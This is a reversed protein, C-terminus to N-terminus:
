HVQVTTRMWPHLCCMFRQTAAPGLEAEDTHGPPVFDGPALTLCEPAPVPNGSLQNLIPVIGGGYAQVPTFTHAEGGRNIALLTQGERAAMRPPANVWSGAKQHRTLQEIFRAFTVGGRRVCTGPGIAANFTAPDCADMMTVRRVPLSANANPGSIDSTGASPHTPPNPDGCGLLLASAGALAANLTLRAYM